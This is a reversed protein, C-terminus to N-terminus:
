SGARGSAERLMEAARVVVTSRNCPRGEAKLEARARQQLGVRLGDVEALQAAADEVVHAAIPFTATSDAEDWWPGAEALRMPSRSEPDAAVALLARAALQAPWDRGRVALQLAADLCPGTWRVGPRGASRRRGACDAVFAAWDEIGCKEAMVPTIAGGPYSSTTNETSFKPNHRMTAAVTAAHKRGGTTTEARGAAERRSGGDSPPHSGAPDVAEHSNGPRSTRVRYLNTLRERGVFRPQIVVADVAVLDRLARDVTDTSKKQLRRALTARSPMRAGSSQGYRLLVAYLRVSCDSVNADLLWEPVVAFREEVDLLDDSSRDDRHDSM